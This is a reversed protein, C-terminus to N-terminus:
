KRKAVTLEVTNSCASGLCIKAQWTGEALPSEGPGDDLPSVKVTVTERPALKRMRPTFPKGTGASRVLKEAGRELHTALEIKMSLGSEPVDVDAAGDNRITLVLGKVELGFRNDVPDGPALDLSLGQKNEMDTRQQPRCAGCAAAAVLAATIAVRRVSVELM